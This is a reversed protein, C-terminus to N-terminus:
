WRLGVHEASFGPGMASLIAVDGPSACEDALFRELIFLVTAASMNGHDRLVDHSRVLADPALGLAEAVADLVVPSGPHVLHHRVDAPSVGVCACADDFSQRFERRVLAPISKALTVSMGDDGFRWGMLDETDPWTVGDQGIVDPRGPRHDPVLVAAAAGDAFLASSVLNATSADTRRFTLSCLEVVVLLVARGRDLHCRDAALGLGVAGGACGRGFVAQRHTHRPPVGLRAMLRADLSPTALGTTSVFVISGVEAASIGARELARVAAAEGLDTAWCQYLDNREAFPHPEAFWEPPACVHRREIHVNDFVPALREFARDSLEAFLTRAIRKADAQDVVHPPSATAVSAICAVSV